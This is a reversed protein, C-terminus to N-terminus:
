PKSPILEVVDKIVFLAIRRRFIPAQARATAITSANSFVDGNTNKEDDSYAELVRQRRAWSVINTM